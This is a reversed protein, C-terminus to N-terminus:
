ASVEVQKYVGNIHCLLYSKGTGTNHWIRSKGAALSNDGVGPAATGSYPAVFWLYSEDVSIPKWYEPETVPNKGVSPQLAVYVTDGATVLDGELYNIISAYANHIITGTFGTSSCKQWFETETNPIKNLNDEVLSIYFASDAGGAHYFVADGISYPLTKRWSGKYETKTMM